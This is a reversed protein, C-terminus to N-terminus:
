GYDTWCMLLRMNFNVSLACNLQDQFNNFGLMWFIADVKSAVLCNCFEGQTISSLFIKVLCHNFYVVFTQLFVQKQDFTWPKRSVYHSSNEVFNDKQNGLLLLFVSPMLNRNNCLTLFSSYRFWSSCHISFTEAVRVLVKLDYCTYGLRGTLVPRTNFDFYFLSCLLVFFYNWVFYLTM